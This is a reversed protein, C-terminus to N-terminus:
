SITATMWRIFNILYVLLVAFHVFLIISHKTLAGNNNTIRLVMIYTVVYTGLIIMFVLTMVTGKDLERLFAGKEATIWKVVNTLAVVSVPIPFALASFLSKRIALNIVPDRKMHDRGEFSKIFRITSNSITDDFWHATM